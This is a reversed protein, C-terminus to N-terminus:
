FILQLQPPPAPEPPPDWPKNLFDNLDRYIFLNLRLTAALNSLSWRMGSRYHLWKLLMLAILATWIQIQLANETTGVFSRLTLNQKLAKFFLEIQWREKYIAAIEAASLDLQNTLLTLSRRSGDREEIELEVQRLPQRYRRAAERSCPQVLRDGRVQGGPELPKEQVCRLRMYLKQPTVFFVGESNWRALLALDMYGRDMAVISGPPLSLSRAYQIDHQRSEGIHVFRPLYDCHDLVIHVKIGGKTRNYDAWPFLQLSLSVVTSDLSLLPNKFDFRHKKPLFGNEARLRKLLGFFIDRYLLAPRHANAYSLTSRAPVSKLGLHKLKGGCSQLGHCIERLSDARALHCFLMAVFQSYCSFGKSRREAKHRAVHRSFESRPIEALLQSFLSSNALTM